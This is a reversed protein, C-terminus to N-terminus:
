EVRLAKLPDLNAARWAPLFNAAAATALLVSGAVVWVTPDTLTVGYLVRSASGLGLWSLLGGAFLGIGAILLGQRLVLRAVTARDAGLAMRVGIERTRREVAYSVVGYLGVAAIVLAVLGVVVAVVAGARVPLLTGAIQGDMTQSDVFVLDPELATLTQQVTALVQAADGRTRVVINQYPSSRQSQAFHVYPTPGEGVTQIRHDAAIGVIEFAPGDPTRLHLRRGLASGDPWFRRAMTENVIAVPQSEPTDIAGFARGQLIPVGLTQFYDPSVRTVQLSFGRETPADHGPVHFQQVNFNLSFPLREALAAGEVGPLARLRELARDYSAGARQQDFGILDVDAAVIALGATQFGVDAGRAALLSRGILGAAVLLVLTVAMQGAVLADRMTFRRGGVTAGVTADGRLDTVIATRAARLAPALGAVLGSGVAVALSFALVRLDIRLDFTLPVPLPLDITTVFRILVAALAVGFLGGVLSLVVSEVLLQRVIQMRGAGIALRIGIERHRASARALLMSAVNACAVLLVLGVLVMLGTAVPVLVRDAAPHVRVGSTALVTPTRGANTEPHAARLGAMVVDLNAQAQAVTVGPGLRGKVFLWRQGRRDLRGTGTPSPVADQIGAPEVENVWATPIWIEAALMPLLGGFGPEAVGVIEYPQGRLRLTRGVVASDRGLEREWFRHSVMAVRPAGPVDDEPLLTRGVVARLGLLTFYNGTVVEGLVLRTRNADTLAAFMASHGAVDEFVGNAERLDVLDPYSTTAYPDGDSGSTYVDVLTAPSAVPLPRLLVADVLSFLATTFGLGLGLSVAAVVVFGPSRRFFRLAYRVDALLRDTM